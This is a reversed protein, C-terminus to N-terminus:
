FVGSRLLAATGVATFLAWSFSMLTGILIFEAERRHAPDKLEGVRFISKAAALFAVGSLNGTLALLYIIAREWHGIIRASDPFGRPHIEDPEAGRARELVAVLPEVLIEILRAGTCVALVLGALWLLALTSGPGLLEVRFTTALSANAGVGVAFGLVILVHAAHRALFLTLRRNRRRRMEDGSLWSSAADGPIWGGAFADLVYGLLAHGIGLAFALHWASATGIAAVALLPHVLLAWLAGRVGRRAPTVLAFEAIVFAALLSVFLQLQGPDV